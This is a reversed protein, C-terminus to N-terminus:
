ATEYKIADSPCAAAAAVIGDSNGKIDAGPKVIAKDDAMEFVAECESVCQECSICDDNVVEVKTVEAM